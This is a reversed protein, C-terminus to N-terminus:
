APLPEELVTLEFCVMWAGYSINYVLSVPYVKFIFSCSIL